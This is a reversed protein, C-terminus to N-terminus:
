VFAESIAFETHNKKRVVDSASATFVSSCLTFIFFHDRVNSSRFFDIFEDILFLCYAPTLLFGHISFINFSTIMQNFFQLKVSFLISTKYLVFCFLFHGDNKSNSM